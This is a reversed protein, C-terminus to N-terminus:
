PVRREYSKGPSLPLLSSAPPELGLTRPKRSQRRNADRDDGASAGAIRRGTPGGAVGRCRVVRAHSAVARLGVGAHPAVDGFAEARVVAAEAAATGDDAAAAARTSGGREVVEAAAAVGAGQLWGCQLVDGTRRCATVSLTPPGGELPGLRCLQAAHGRLALINKTAPPRTPSM